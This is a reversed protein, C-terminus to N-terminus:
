NQSNEVGQPQSADKGFSFFPFGGGGGGSGQNVVYTGDLFRQIRNTADVLHAKSYPDLGATEASAELAQHLEKLKLAAM